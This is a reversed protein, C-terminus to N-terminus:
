QGWYGRIGPVHRSIKGADDLIVVDYTELVGANTNVLADWLVVDDVHRFDVIRDLDYRGHNEVYRGYFGRIEDAGKASGDYRVIEADEGYLDLAADLDRAGLAAHLGDVIARADITM